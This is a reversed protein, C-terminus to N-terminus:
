QAEAAAGEKRGVRCCCVVGEGVQVYSTCRGQCAFSPIPKSTCGPYSLIHIVPTLSCEDARVVGVCLVAMVAVAVTWSYGSMSCSSHGRQFAVRFKRRKATGSHRPSHRSPASSSSRPPPDPSLKYIQTFVAGGVDWSSASHRAPGQPPAVVRQCPEQEEGTGFM